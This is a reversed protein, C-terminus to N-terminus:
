YVGEFSYNQNLSKERGKGHFMNNQFGGVYEFDKSVFEGEQCEATNDKM